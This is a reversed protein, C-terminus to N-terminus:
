ILTQLIKKSESSITWTNTTPKKASDSGLELQASPLSTGLGVQGSSNQYYGLNSPKANIGGTYMAIRGFAV